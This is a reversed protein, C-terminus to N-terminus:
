EGKEALLLASLRTITAPKLPQGIAGGEGRKHGVGDLTAEHHRLEGIASLVGPTDARADAEEYAAVSREVAPRAPHDSELVPRLFGTIRAFEAPATAVSPMLGAVVSQLQAGELSGTRAAELERRVQGIRRDATNFDGADSAAVCATCLETLYGKAFGHERVTKQIEGKM